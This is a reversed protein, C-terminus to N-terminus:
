RDALTGAPRAIRSGDPPAELPEVEVPMRAEAGFWAVLEHVVDVELVYAGPEGPAEVALMVVTEEGPGVTEEFPTRLGEPVVCEGGAGLWRYALRILPAGTHAPPWRETGLNHVAVEVHSVVGALLAPRDPSIRIEARYAEPGIERAANYADVEAVSVRELAPAPASPAPAPEAVAAILPRDSAPVPAARLGSWREPLYLANVPYAETRLDPVLEDYRNATERRGAESTIVYRLHYFPLAPERRREGLVRPERHAAGDSSWLGPVNRLLRAQYDPFWPHSALYRDPAGYLHRRPLCFASRRRDRVLAPLADLLARSPLEDDDLRLIWDASCQHLIWGIYRSPPWAFAYALRRDVLDACAAHIAEASRDDAALVIEDAVPRVLALIARVRAPDRSATMCVSLTTMRTIM